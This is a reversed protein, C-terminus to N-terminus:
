LAKWGSGAGPTPPRVTTSVNAQAELKKLAALSTKLVTTACVKYVWVLKNQRLDKECTNLQKDADVLVKNGQAQLHPPLAAKVLASGLVLRVYENNKVAEEVPDVGATGSSVLVGDLNQAYSLAVTAFLALIILKNM